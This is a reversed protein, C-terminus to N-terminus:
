KVMFSPRAILNWLLTGIYMCNTWHQLKNQSHKTECLNLFLQHKQLPILTCDQQLRDSVSLGKSYHLSQAHETIYQTCLVNWSCLETSTHLRLVGMVLWWILSWSVLWCAAPVVANSLAIAHRVLMVSILRCETELYGTHEVVGAWWWYVLWRFWWCCAYWGFYVLLQNTM